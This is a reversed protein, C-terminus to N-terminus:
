RRPWAWRVELYKGGVGRELVNGLQHKAECSIESHSASMTMLLIVLRLLYIISGISVGGLSSSAEHNRHRIVDIILVQSLEPITPVRLGNRTATAM